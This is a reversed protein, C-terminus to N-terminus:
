RRRVALDAADAAAQYARFDGTRIAAAARDPSQPPKSGLTTPPAPASSFPKAPQAATPGDSSFRAEIRGFARLMAAPTPAAALGAWEQQGAPTSFHKLLPVSVDSEVCAQILVNAARPAVGPALAFAPTLQFLGPDIKEDFEPDSARAAALKESFGTITQQVSGVRERSEADLRASKERDEFMQKAVFVANATSWEEYSDFDEVKPAAPHKQYRAHDAETPAPAPSSAARKDDTPQRHFALEERLAKAVRIQEKLEAVEADVQQKRTTLNPRPKDAPPATESAAQTSADTSASQDGSPAPSSDARATSPPSSGLDAANAAQEYDSFSPATPSEASTAGTGPTTDM